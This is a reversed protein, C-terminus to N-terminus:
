VKVSGHTTKDVITSVSQAVHFGNPFVVAFLLASVKLLAKKM